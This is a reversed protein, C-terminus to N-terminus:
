LSDGFANAADQELFRTILRIEASYASEQVHTVAEFPLNNGFREHAYM